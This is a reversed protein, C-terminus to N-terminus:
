EVARLEPAPEANLADRLCALLYPGHNRGLWRGLVYFLFPLGVLIFAMPLESWDVHSFTGQASTPVQGRFATCRLTFGQATIRGRLGRTRGTLPRTVEDLYGKLRVACGEPSMPSRLVEVRSAFPNKLLSM